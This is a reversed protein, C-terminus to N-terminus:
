MKTVIKHNQEVDKNSNQSRTRFVDAPQVKYSFEARQAVQSIYEHGFLYIIRYCYNRVQNTKVAVSHIHVYHPYNSLLHLM